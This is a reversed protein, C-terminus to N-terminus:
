DFLKKVEAEWLGARRAREKSLEKLRAEAEPSISTLIPEHFEADSIHGDPHIVCGERSKPPKPQRSM